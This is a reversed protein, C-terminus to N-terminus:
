KIRVRYINQWQIGENIRAFDNEMYSSLIYVLAGRGVGRGLTVGHRRMYLPTAARDYKLLYLPKNITEKYWALLKNPEYHEYFYSVMLSVRGCEWTEAQIDRLLIKNVHGIGILFTCFLYLIIIESNSKDTIRLWKM